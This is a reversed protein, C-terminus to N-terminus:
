SVRQNLARNWLSSKFTEFLQEQQAQSWRGKLPVLLNYWMPGRFKGHITVWGPKFQYRLIGTVAHSYIFHISHFLYCWCLSCCHKSSSKKCPKMWRQLSCRFFLVSTRLYNNQSICCLSSVNTNRQIHIHCWSSCEIKRKNETSILM